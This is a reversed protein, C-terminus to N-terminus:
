LHEAYFALIRGVMADDLMGISHAAGPRLDLEVPVGVTELAQAMAIASQEPLYEDESHALYFPPDTPDVAYLASAQLAAPCDAPDTCGLYALGLRVEEAGLDPTIAAQTFDLVGSLEVVARLRADEDLPGKGATGAESVLIAGASGGFAGIRAADIGFREAQGPERLWRVAEQLDELAAPYIAGPLKRYDITFAAYGSRALLAAIPAADPGTRSGGTFGGGHVVVVAPVPVDVPEGPLYADLALEQGDVIRYVVDREVGGPPPSAPSPASTSPDPVPTGACGALALAVLLGAALRRPTRM